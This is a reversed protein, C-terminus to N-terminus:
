ESARRNNMTYDFLYAKLPSESKVLPCEVEEIMRTIDPTVRCFFACISDGEENFKKYPCMFGVECPNTM